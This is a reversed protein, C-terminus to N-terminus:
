VYDFYIFETKQIRNKIEEENITRQEAIYTNLFNQVKELTDYVRIYTVYDCTPGACYEYTFPKWFLFKKYQPEFIEEGGVTTTKKIRCKTKMFNLLFM